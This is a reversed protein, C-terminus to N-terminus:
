LLMNISFHSVVKPLYRINIPREKERGSRMRMNKFCYMLSIDCNPISEIPITKSIDKKMPATIQMWIFNFM